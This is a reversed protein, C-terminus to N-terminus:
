RCYKRNYTVVLNFYFGVKIDLNTGVSMVSFHDRGRTVDTITRWNAGLSLTKRAFTVFLGQLTKM